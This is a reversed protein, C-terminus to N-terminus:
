AVRVADALRPPGGDIKPDFRLPAIPDVLKFGSVCEVVPDVGIGKDLLVIDEIVCAIFNARIVVEVLAVRREIGGQKAIYVM